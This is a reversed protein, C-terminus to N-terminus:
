GVNRRALRRGDQSACAKARRVCREVVAAIESTIKGGVEFRSIRLGPRACVGSLSVSTVSRKAGRSRRSVHVAAHAFRGREFYYVIRAFTPASRERAGRQRKGRKDLRYQPM